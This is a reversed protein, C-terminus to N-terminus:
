KLDSNILFISRLRMIMVVFYLSIFSPIIKLYTNYFSVLLVIFSKCLFQVEGLYDTIAVWINNNLSKITVLEGGGTKPMYQIIDLWNGGRKLIGDEAVSPSLTISNCMSKSALIALKADM